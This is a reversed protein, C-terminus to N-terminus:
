ELDFFSKNAKPVRNPSVVGEDLESGENPNKKGYDYNILNQVFRPEEYVPISNIMAVAAGYMDITSLCYILGMYNDVAIDVFNDINGITLRIGRDYYGNNFEIPIPSLTITKNDPQMDPISIPDVHKALVVKNNEQKWLDPDLLWKSAEKFVHQVILMKAPRIQMYLDPNDWQEITLYYDFNRKISLVQPSPYKYRDSSIIYGKAFTQRENDKDKHGLRVNMKLYTSYGLHMVIDSITEIDEYVIHEFM